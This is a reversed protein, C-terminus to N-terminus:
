ASRRCSLGAHRGFISPVLLVGAAAGTTDISRDKLMGKLERVPLAMLEERPQTIAPLEQQPPSQKPAGEAVMQAHKRTLLEPRGSVAGAHQHSMPVPAAAEPCM